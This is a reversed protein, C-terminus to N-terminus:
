RTSTPQVAQLRMFNGLETQDAGELAGAHELFATYELVDEGAQMALPREFSHSVSSRGRRSRRGFTLQRVAARSIRRKTPSSRRASSAAPM